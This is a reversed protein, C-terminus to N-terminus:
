NGRFTNKTSFFTYNSLLSNNFKDCKNLIYIIHLQKTEKYYDTLLKNVQVEILYTKTSKKRTQLVNNTIVEAEYQGCKQIM